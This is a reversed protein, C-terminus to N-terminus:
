FISNLFPALAPIVLIIGFAVLLGCIVFFVIGLARRSRPVAAEADSDTGRDVFRLGLAFLTVVGCGGLISAALVVLFSGWDIV